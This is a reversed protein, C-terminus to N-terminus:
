GMNGRKPQSRCRRTLLITGSSVMREADEISLKRIEDPGVSQMIQIIEDPMNMEHLYARVDSMLKKYRLDAEELSATTADAFYPRHIGIGVAYRGVAGSAILVCASYCPGRSTLKGETRRLDRGIQMAAKVDGGLSSITVWPVIRKGSRQVEQELIFRFADADAKSISGDISIDIPCRGNIEAQCPSKLVVHLGFQEGAFSSTSCIAATSIAIARLFRKM